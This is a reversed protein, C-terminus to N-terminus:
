VFIFVILISGHMAYIDGFGIKVNNNLIGNLKTLKLLFCSDDNSDKENVFGNEYSIKLM